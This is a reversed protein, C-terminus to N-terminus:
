LAFSNKRLVSIASWEQTEDTFIGESHHIVQHSYCEYSPHWDFLKRNDMKYSFLGPAHHYENKVPTEAYFDHIVIWSKQAAVRDAEQAIRFLDERDCWCLCFGFVVVDFSNNSFPLSDATGEVINFGKKVGADVAVKSPELGSVEVNLNNSLWELRTGDSCGIELLKLKNQTGYTKAIREITQAVPTRQGSLTRLTKQNRSYWSNGESNQFITKQSM